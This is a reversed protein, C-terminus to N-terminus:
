NGTPSVGPNASIFAQREQAIQQLFAMKDSLQKQTFAAVAAAEDSTLTSEPPPTAPASGPNQAQEAKWAMLARGQRDQKEIIYRHAAKFADRDQAQQTFFAVSEQDQKQVFATWQPNVYSSTNQGFSVQPLFFLIMISVLFINKMCSEKKLGEILYYGV